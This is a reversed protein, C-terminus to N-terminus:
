KVTIQEKALISTVFGDKLEKLEDFSYNGAQYTKSFENELMESYLFSNFTNEKYQEETFGLEELVDEYIGFMNLFQIHEQMKVEAKENIQELTAKDLSKTCLKGAAAYQRAQESSLTNAEIYKYKSVSDTIREATINMDLNYILGFIETDKFYMPEGYVIASSHSTNFESFANSMKLSFSNYVHKPVGYFSQGSDLSYIIGWDFEYIIKEQEKYESILEAFNIKLKDRYYESHGEMSIHVVSQENCLATLYTRLEPFGRSSLSVNITDGFSTVIEKESNNNIGEHYFAYFVKFIQICSYVVILFVTILLIKYLLMNNHKCKIKHM